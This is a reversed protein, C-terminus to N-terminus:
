GLVREHQGLQYGAQNATLKEIQDRMLRRGTEVKPGQHGEQRNRGQHIAIRLVGPGTPGGANGGCGLRTCPLGLVLSAGDASWHVTEAGVAVQRERSGGAQVVLVRSRMPEASGVVVALRGNRGPFAAEAAAAGVLWATVVCMAIAARM